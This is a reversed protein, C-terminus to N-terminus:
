PRSITTERRRAQRRTRNHTSSGSLSVGSFACVMGLFPLSFPVCLIWGSASAFFHNTQMTSRVNEHAMPPRQPPRFLQLGIRRVCKKLVFVKYLLYILLHHNNHCTSPRDCVVYAGGYQWIIISILGPWKSSLFLGPSTTFRADVILRKKRNKKQLYESNHLTNRIQQQFILRM